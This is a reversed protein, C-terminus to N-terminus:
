RPNDVCTGTGTGTKTCTSGVASRPSVYICTGSGTTECSGGDSALTCTTAANTGTCSEVVEDIARTFQCITDPDTSSCRTLNKKLNHITNLDRERYGTVGSEIGSYKNVNYFDNLYDCSAYTRSSDAPGDDKTKEWECFSSFQQTCQKKKTDLSQNSQSISACLFAKENDDINAANAKCRAGDDCDSGSFLDEPVLNAGVCKIEGGPDITFHCGEEMLCNKQIDYIEYMDYNKINLPKVDACTNNIYKCKDNQGCDEVSRRNVCDMITAESYDGEAKPICVTPKDDNLRKMIYNRIIYERKDEPSMDEDLLTLALEERVKDATWPSIEDYWGTASLSEAISVLHPISMTDLDGANWICEDEDMCEEKNLADVCTSVSCGPKNLLYNQGRYYKSHFYGYKDYEMLQQEELDNTPQYSNSYVQKDPAAIDEGGGSKMFIGFPFPLAFLITVYVIIILIIELYKFDTDKTLIFKIKVLHEVIWIILLYSLIPIGVITIGIILSDIIFGYSCGDEGDEGESCPADVGSHQGDFYYILSDQDNNIGQLKIKDYDPSDSLFPLLIISGVFLIYVVLSSNEGLGYMGHVACGVIFILIPVSGYWWNIGHYWQKILLMPDTENIFYGTYFRGRRKAENLVYRWFFLLIVSLISGWFVTFLIDHNRYMHYGLDNQDMEAPRAVQAGTGVNLGGSRNLTLNGGYCLYLVLLFTVSVALFQSWSSVDKFYDNNLAYNRVWNTGLYFIVLGFTLILINEHPFSQPLYTKNPGVLTHMGKLKTITRM